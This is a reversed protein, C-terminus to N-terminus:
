IKTVTDIRESLSALTISNEDRQVAIAEPTEKSNMRTEVELLRTNLDSLASGFKEGYHAQMERFHSRVLGEIMQGSSSLTYILTASKKIQEKLQDQLLLATEQSDFIQECAALYAAKQSSHNISSSTRHSNASTPLPNSSKQSDYGWPKSLEKAVDCRPSLLQDIGSLGGSGKKGNSRAATTAPNLLHASSNDSNPHASGSTM